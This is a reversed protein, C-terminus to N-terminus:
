LTQIADAIELTLQCTSRQQRGWQKHLEKLGHLFLLHDVTEPNLQSWRDDLTRGATSFSEKQLGFVHKDSTNVLDM